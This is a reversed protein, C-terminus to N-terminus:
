MTMLSDIVASYLYMKDVPTKHVDEEQNQQQKGEEQQQSEFLADPHVSVEFIRWTQIETDQSSSVLNKRSASSSNKASDNRSFTHIKEDKKVRPTSTSSQHRPKKQNSSTSLNSLKSKSPDPKNSYYVCLFRKPILRSKPNIWAISSPTIIILLTWTITKM